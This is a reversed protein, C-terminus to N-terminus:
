MLVWVLMLVHVHVGLVVLLVHQRAHAFRAWRRREEGRLGGAGGGRGKERGKEGQAGGRPARGSTGRGRHLGQWHRPGQGTPLHTRPHLPPPSQTNNFFYLVIYSILFAHLLAPHAHMRSMKLVKKRASAHKARAAFLLAHEKRPHSRQGVGWGVWVLLM